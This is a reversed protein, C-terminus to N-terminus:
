LSFLSSAIVDATYQVGYSFKSLDYCYDEDDAVGNPCEFSQAPETIRTWNGTASKKYSLEFVLIDNAHEPLPTWVLYSKPPAM